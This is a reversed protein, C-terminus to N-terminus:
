RRRSVKQVEDRLARAIMTPLESVTRRFIAMEQMAGAGARYAAAARPSLVLEGPTLMAPVTDTGRARFPLVNGGNAFYQPMPVIGSPTVLGGSAAYEFERAEPKGHEHYNVDVDVTRPIDAIKSPVMGIKELLEQLKAVVRDFGETMTESFKVGVDELSAIKNGAEDTILGQDIMSQIIPKMAEPVEVGTKAAIKLYENITEAMKNNVTVVDIGSGVLLRWDNLLQKAQDDLKQRQMAPGLEEISFGYREIADQLDAADQQQEKLVKNLEDIAEKATAADKHTADLMKQIAKRADDASRGTEEFANGIARSMQEFTGFQKQFDAVTQRADKEDKSVGFKGFLATIGKMAYNLGTGILSSLGGSLMKGIGDIFGKGVNEFIGGLGHGGTIGEVLGKLSAKFPGIAQTAQQIPGVFQHEIDPGLDKVKTGVSELGDAMGKFGFNAIHATNEVKDIQPQLKEMDRSFDVLTTDTHGIAKELGFFGAEVKHVAETSAPLERLNKNIEKVNENIRKADQEFQGMIQDLDTPLGPVALPAAANSPKRRQADEAMKQFESRLERVKSLSLTLIDALAEGLNAKTARWFRAAADGADDLAKVTERSMGGAGDKVDDFGRKIVPALEKWNKGFLESAVRAFELPDKIERLADAVKIFQEGPDLSKFEKLSIHLENLAAVAGKDGRGLREQLKNVADAMTEVTVGADDGAVRMAQLSEVSIETRDHLKMLADADAMVAKAFNIAATVGIGIGFAGLLGQVKGMWSAMENGSKNAENAADALRQLGAPVEYGLKRMKEAAENAKAGVSQLQDATLKAVGGAKEVAITMLSAEQILKRGSFSDVMKNLTTEVRSAGKSFDVLAIEAKDIADLFSSFDAKFTATIAM